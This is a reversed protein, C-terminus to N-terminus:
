KTSIVEQELKFILEQQKVSERKLNKLKDLVKELLVKETYSRTTENGVHISLEYVTDISSVQRIHKTTRKANHTPMRNDRQDTEMARASPKVMWTSRKPMVPSGWWRLKGVAPDTM